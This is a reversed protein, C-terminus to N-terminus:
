AKKTLKYSQITMSLDYCLAWYVIHIQCVPRISTHKLCDVRTSLSCHSGNLALKEHLVALYGEPVEHLNEPMGKETSLRLIDM